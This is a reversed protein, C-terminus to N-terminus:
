LTYPAFIRSSAHSISRFPLETDSFALMTRGNVTRKVNAVFFPAIFPAGNEPLRYVPANRWPEYVDEREVVLEVGGLSAQVRWVSSRRACAPCYADALPQDLPAWNSDTFTEVIATSRLAAQLSQMAANKNTRGGLWLWATRFSTLTPDNRHKHHLTIRGVGASISCPLSSPLLSSVLLSDTGTFFFFLLPM